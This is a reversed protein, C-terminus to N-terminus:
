VLMLSKLKLLLRRAAPKAAAVAAAVVAVWVSVPQRAIRHRYLCSTRVVVFSLSAQRVPIM